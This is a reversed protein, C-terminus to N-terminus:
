SEEMDLQQIIKFNKSSVDLIHGLVPTSSTKVQLHHGFFIRHRYISLHGWGKWLFLKM